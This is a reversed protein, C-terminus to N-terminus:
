GGKLQGDVGDRRRFYAGPRVRRYRNRLQLVLELEVECTRVFSGGVPRRMHGTRAACTQVHAANHQHQSVCFEGHSPAEPVQTNGLIHGHHNHRGLRVRSICMVVPAALGRTAAHTRQLSMGVQKCNANRKTSRMWGEPIKKEECLGGSTVGSRTVGFWWAGGRLVFWAWGRGRVWGRVAGARHEGGVGHGRDTPHSPPPPPCLHTNLSAPPDIDRPAGTSRCASAASCRRGRVQRPPDGLGHGLGCHPRQPPHEHLHRTRSSTTCRCMCLTTCLSMNMLGCFMRLIMRM